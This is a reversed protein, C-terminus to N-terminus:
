LTENFDRIIKNCKYINENVADVDWHYAYVKLQPSPSKIPFQTLQLGVKMWQQFALTHGPPHLYRKYPKRTDEIEWGLDLLTVLDEPNIGGCYSCTRPKFFQEPWFSEERDWRDTM